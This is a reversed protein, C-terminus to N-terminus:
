ALSLGKKCAEIVAEYHVRHKISIQAPHYTDIFVISNRKTYHAYESDKNVEENPIGLDPRLLWMTMGCCIVIHPKFVRIQELILGKSQKYANAVMAGNAHAGGPLKKLNIYAISELTHTEIKDVSPLSEWQPFGHFIGYMVRLPLSFTRKWKKYGKFKGNSLFKRIDWGGGDKEDNPEKLIWLVRYPAAIYTQFNVIGDRVPKNGTADPQIDVFLKEIELVDVESIM